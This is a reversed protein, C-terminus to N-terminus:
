GGGSGERWDGDKKVLLSEWWNTFLIMLLVPAPMNMPCAVGMISTGVVGVAGEEIRFVLSLVEGLYRFNRFM